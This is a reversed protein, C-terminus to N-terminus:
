SNSTKKPTEASARPRHVLSVIQEALKLFFRFGILGFGGPIIIEFYWAPINEFLITNFEKEVAVFEYGARALIICVLITIGHIFIKILPLYKETVLRTLIDINIHKDERTALSAGVFGVWLVLHRLFIDGWLIGTEFLNRLLVQLFSLLVMVGLILVILANEFVALGSDIKDIVDKM